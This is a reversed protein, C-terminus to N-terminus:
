QELNKKIINKLESNPINTYMNEIDFSCLKTNKDIKTNILSQTLHHSNQINFAKPLKLTESLLTNLHKATKYGPSGKRNVIPRKTEDRKHLKVTGHSARPNMNFYKWKNNANIIKNCNNLNNRTNQLLKNTIDHPLKTFNNKNIFKEIKRNYYHKYLM